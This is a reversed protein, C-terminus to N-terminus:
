NRKREKIGEAFMESGWAFDVSAGHNGLNVAKTLNEKLIFGNCSETLNEDSYISSSLQVIEIYFDDM